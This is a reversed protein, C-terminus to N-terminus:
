RCAFELVPSSEAAIRAAVEARDVKVHPPASIGIKVRDNGIATVTIRIGGEVVIEEGIKRTLVLM